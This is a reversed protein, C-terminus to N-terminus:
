GPWRGSRTTRCSASRAPRRGPPRTRSRSNGAPSRSSWRRRRGTRRRRAARCARARGAPGPPRPPDRARQIVEVHPPPQYAEWIAKSSRPHLKIYLKVRREEALRFLNLAIHRHHEPTWGLLGEELYPHDIYVLHDRTPASTSHYIDFFPLGTFLADELAIGNQWHFWEFTARSFIINYRPVRERFQLHSLAKDSAALAIGLPLALYKARSAATRFGETVSYYFLKASLLRRPDSLRRKWHPLKHTALKIEKTRAVATKKDAAAGHELYFTSVQMRRATVILAIQRLDIIEMFVIKDPALGRILAEPTAFDMWYHVGAIWSPREWSGAPDEDAAEFWLLHIEFEPERALYSFSSLNTPPGIVLIRM